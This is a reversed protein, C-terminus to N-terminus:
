SKSLSGQAQRLVCGHLAKHCFVCFRSCIPIAWGHHRSVIFEANRGPVADLPGLPTGALVRPGSHREDILQQGFTTRGRSFFEMVLLGDVPKFLESDMGDALRAQPLRM